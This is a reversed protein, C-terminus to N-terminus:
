NANAKYILRRYVAPWYDTQHREMATTAAVPKWADIGAVADCTATPFLGVATNLRDSGLRWRGDAQQQGLQQWSQVEEHWALEQWLRKLEASTMLRKNTFIVNLFRGNQELTCVSEAVKPKLPYEDALGLLHGLEHAFVLGNSDETLLLREDSVSAVGRESLIVPPTNAPSSLQSPMANAPQLSFCLGKFPFSSATLGSLLDVFLQKRMAGQPYVLFESNCQAESSLWPWMGAFPQSLATRYEPRSWRELWQKWSLLPSRLQLEALAQIAERDGQKAAERLWEEHQQPFHQQLAELADKSGNYLAREWWYYAITRQQRQWYHNAIHTQANADDAFARLWRTQQDTKESDASLLLSVVCSIVVFVVNKM